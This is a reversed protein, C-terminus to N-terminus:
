EDGEEADRRLRFADYLKQRHEKTLTTESEQLQKELEVRGLKILTTLYGRYERTAFTNLLWNTVAVVARDRWPKTYGRFDPTESM